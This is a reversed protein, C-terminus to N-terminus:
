IAKGKIKKIIKEALLEVEQSNEVSKESKFVLSKEVKLVEECHVKEFNDVNKKILDNVEYDYIKKLEDNSEEKILNKRLLADFNEKLNLEQKQDYEKQLIIYRIVFFYLFVLYFFFCCLTWLSQHLFYKLLLENTM